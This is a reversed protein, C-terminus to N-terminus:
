CSILSGGFITCCCRSSSTSYDSETTKQPHRQSFTTRSPSISTKSRGAAVICSVSHNLRTQGSAFIRRL